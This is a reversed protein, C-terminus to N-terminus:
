SSTSCRRAFAAVAFRTLSNLVGSLLAVLSIFVLYPFTWRTLEVTLEFKGPTQAYDSVM